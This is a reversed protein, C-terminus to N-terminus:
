NELSVVVAVGFRAMFTDRQWELHEACVPVGNPHLPNGKMLAVGPNWCGYRSCDIDAAALAMEYPTQPDQHPTVHGDRM